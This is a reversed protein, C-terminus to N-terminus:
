RRHPLIYGRLDVTVEFSVMKENLEIETPVPMGPIPDQRKFFKELFLLLKKHVWLLNIVHDKNILHAHRLSLSHLIRASVHPLFTYYLQKETEKDTVNELQNAKEEIVKNVVLIDDDIVWKELLTEFWKRNEPNNEAWDALKPICDSIMNYVYPHNIARFYVEMIRKIKSRREENRFILLTFKRSNLGIRLIRWL